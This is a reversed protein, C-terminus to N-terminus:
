RDFQAVGLCGESVSRVIRDPEFYQKYDDSSLVNRGMSYRAKTINFVGQIVNNEFALYIFM